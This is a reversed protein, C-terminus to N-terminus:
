WIDEPQEPNDYVDKSCWEIFDMYFQKSTDDMCNRVRLYLTTSPTVYGSWIIRRLSGDRSRAPTSGQDFAQPGKMYGQEHLRLDVFRNHVDDQTDGEWGINSPATNYLTRKYLGGVRLDIPLTTIPLNDKETGIAFSAISRANSDSSVGFRLEYYGSAPVPPLKLTFDYKGVINFEDGQYNLWQNGYGTLYYFRTEEGITLHDFYQYDSSIPFARASSAGYSYFGMPRRLDNNIMEPLLSAADFRLRQNKLQTSVNETYALLKQIPYIFGNLAHVANTDADMSIVCIGENEDNTLAQGRVPKFMGSERYDNRLENDPVNAASFAGRGNRLVPFRNLYIGQSERSQYVKLLRPKGLTTYFEEVPITYKNKYHYDYGHENYHIVLKDISLREPLIHYTVFQNLLNNQNSYDGDTTAEPYINKATLYLMVDEATIASAKKGILAEWVADTEAFVTFGYYRHEPITGNQGTSGHYPLDQVRGSMYAEEYAGDRIMSLQTQLGCAEMLRAFVTYGSINKLSQGITMVETQEDTPEQSQANTTLLFTCALLAIYLIKQKM